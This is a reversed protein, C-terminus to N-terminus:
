FVRIPTVHFVIYVVFPDIEGGQGFGSLFQLLDEFFDVLQTKALGAHFSNDFHESPFDSGILLSWYMHDPALGVHRAEGQQSAQGNHRFDRLLRRMGAALEEKRNCPAPQGEGLNEETDDCLDNHCLGAFDPRM